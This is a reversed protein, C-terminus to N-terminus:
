NGHSLGEEQIVTLEKKSYEDFKKHLSDSVSRLERNLLFFCRNPDSEGALATSTRSAISEYQQKMERIISYIATCVDASSVLAHIKELYEIEALDAKNKLLRHRQTETTSGHAAMARAIMWEIVAATDYQNEGGRGADLLIPLGEKEQWTTLTRESRGLIGALERKNVIM